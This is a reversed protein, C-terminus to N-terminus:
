KKDGISKQRLIMSLQALRHKIHKFLHPKFPKRTVRKVRLKFLEKQLNLIENEIEKETLDKIDRIKPFHM